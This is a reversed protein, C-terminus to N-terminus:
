VVEEENEDDDWLLFPILFPTKAKYDLYEQGFTKILRREEVLAGVVFYASFAFYLAALNRTMTPTLWLVLISFTYLPHRVIRYLGRTNLKDEEELGLAQTLGIFSFIGTQILSYSLALLSLIQLAM